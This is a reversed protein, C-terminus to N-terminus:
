DVTVIGCLSVLLVYAILRLSEDGMLQVAELKL